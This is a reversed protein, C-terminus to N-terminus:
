NPFLTRWVQWMRHLRLKNNVTMAEGYNKHKGPGPYYPTSIQVHVLIHIFTTLMIIPVLARTLPQNTLKVGYLIHLIDYLTITSIIATLTVKERERERRMVPDRCCHPEYRCQLWPQRRQHCETEGCWSTQRPKPGGWEM